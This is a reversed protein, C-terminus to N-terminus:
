WGEGENPKANGGLCDSNLGINMVPEQETRKHEDNVGAGSSHIAPPSGHSASQTDDDDQQQPGCEQCLPALHDTPYGLSVRLGHRAHGDLQLQFTFPLLADDGVAISHETEIVHVKASAWM